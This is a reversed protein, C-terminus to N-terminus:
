TQIKSFDHQSSYHSFLLASLTTTLDPLYSTQIKVVLKWLVNIIVEQILALLLLSDPLFEFFM